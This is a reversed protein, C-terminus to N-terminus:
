RSIAKRFDETIKDTLKENKVECIGHLLEHFFILFIIRQLKERNKHNEFDDTLAIHIARDFIGKVPKKFMVVNADTLEFDGAFGKKISYEKGCAFVYVEPEKVGNNNIFKELKGKHIFSEKVIIRAVENAAKDYPIWALNVTLGDFPLELFVIDRKSKL